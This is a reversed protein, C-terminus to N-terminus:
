HIYLQLNWHEVRTHSAIEALSNPPFFHCPLRDIGNTKTAQSATGTDFNSSELRKECCRSPPYWDSRNGRPVMPNPGQYSTARAASQWIHPHKHASVERLGQGICFNFYNFTFVKL